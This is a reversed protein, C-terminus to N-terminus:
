RYSVGGLGAGICLDLRCKRCHKARLYNSANVNADNLVLSCYKLKSTNKLNEILSLLIGTYM